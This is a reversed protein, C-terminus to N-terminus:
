WDTGLDLTPVRRPNILRANHFAAYMDLFEQLSDPRKTTCWTRRALRKINDRYM